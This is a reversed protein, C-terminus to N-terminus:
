DVVFVVIDNIGNYNDFVVVFWYLKMFGLLVVSM